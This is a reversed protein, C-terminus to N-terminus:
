FTWNKRYYSKDRCGLCPWAFSFPSRNRNSTTGRLQSAKKSSNGTRIHSTNEHLQIVKDHITSNLLMNSNLMSIIRSVHKM